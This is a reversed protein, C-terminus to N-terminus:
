RVSAELEPAAEAPPLKEWQEKRTLLYIAAALVTGGMIALLLQYNVIGVLWAGMAVSLIQPTSLITDAAASVRGQLELPTRVQLMTYAGVVIWPLGAGFVIAGAMVGAMSPIAFLGAGAAALVLGFGMLPGEGM